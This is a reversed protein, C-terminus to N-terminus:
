KHRVDNNAFVVEADTWWGFSMTKKTDKVRKFYFSCIQGDKKRIELYQQSTLFSVELAQEWEGSAIDIWNNKSPNTTVRLKQKSYFRTEM